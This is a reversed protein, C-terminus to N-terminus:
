RMLFSKRMDFLISRFNLGRCHDVWTKTQLVLGAIPELELPQGLAGGGGPGCAEVVLPALDVLSPPRRLSPALRAGGSTEWELRVGPRGAEDLEQMGFPQGFEAGGGDLLSPGSHVGPQGLQEPYHVGGGQGLRGPERGQRPGGGLLRGVRLLVDGHVEPLVVDGEGAPHHGLDLEGPITVILNQLSDGVKLSHSSDLRTREKSM